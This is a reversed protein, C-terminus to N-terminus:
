NSKSSIQGYTMFVASPTYKLNKKNDPINASYFQAEFIKAVPRFEKFVPDNWKKM